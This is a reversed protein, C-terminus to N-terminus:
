FSPSLPLSEVKDRTKDSVNIPMYIGVDLNDIVPVALARVGEAEGLSVAAVLRGLVVLVGPDATLEDIVHAERRSLDTLLEEIGPRIAM